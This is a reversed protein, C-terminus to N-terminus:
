AAKGSVSAARQRALYTPCDHRSACRRAGRLSRRVARMSCMCTLEYRGTLPNRAILVPM